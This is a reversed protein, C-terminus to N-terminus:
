LAFTLFGSIEIPFSSGTERIKNDFDRLLSHTLRYTTQSYVPLCETNSCCGSKKWFVSSWTVLLWAVTALSQLPFTGLSNVCTPTSLIPCGHRHGGYPSRSYRRSVRLQIYLTLCFYAQLTWYTFCM